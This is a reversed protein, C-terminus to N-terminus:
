KKDITKKNTRLRIPQFQNTKGMEEKLRQKRAADNAKRQKRARRSSIFLAVILALLV